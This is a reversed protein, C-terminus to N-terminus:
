KFFGKCNRFIGGISSPGPCGTAMGDTNVKIWGPPPPTWYVELIKPSKPPRGTIHFHKLIIPDAVTNSMNGPIATNLEAICNIFHYKFASIKPKISHFIADNRAKWLKHFLLAAGTILVNFTQPSLKRKIIFSWLETVSSSPFQHINFIALFWKWLNHAFECQILVHYTSESCANCLSCMSATAIGKSQLSVQSPLANHMARWLLSSARPPTHTNWIHKYHHNKFSKHFFEYADSFTLHGKPSFPWVLNDKQQHIPLPIKSINSSENPFLDSFWSPLAWKGEEIWMSLCQDTPIHSPPIPLDNFWNDQWIHISRGDGVVWQSHLKITSLSAKIGSWLSSVQYTSPSSGFRIGFKGRMFSSWLSDIHLMDWTFKLNAADNLARLKRVGLGGAELSSCVKHWAVTTLKRVQINGSWIFNRMWQELQKLLLIPWKYIMFSHLLMPTVIDKILGVRGALSLMKGQWGELKIKVKDALVQLHRKKPTGKFIPVGLYLFPAKDEAMGLTNCIISSRHAAGKGIYVKSKSLNLIQGSIDSYDNFLKLVTRLSQLSGNCLVLVDDAYLIHTPVTTRRPSSICTFFGKEM